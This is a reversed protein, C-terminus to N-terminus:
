DIIPTIMKLPARKPSLSLSRSHSCTLELMYSRTNWRKSQQDYELRAICLQPGLRRVQHQGGPQNRQGPNGQQPCYDEELTMNRTAVQIECDEGSDSESGSDSEEDSSTEGDTQPYCIRTDSTNSTM